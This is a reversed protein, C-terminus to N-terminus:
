YGNRYHILDERVSFVPLERHDKQACKKNTAYSAHLAHSPDCSLKGLWMPYFRFRQVVGATM